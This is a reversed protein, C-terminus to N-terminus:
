INNELHGWRKFSLINQIAVQSVGFMEAIKHQTIGPTIEKILHIRRVQFENLKAMGNREGNNVTGLPIRDALNNSQNDWRLNEPRNDTPDSNNHCVFPLGEPQCGHFAMAVLRSVIRHKYKRGLSILYRGQNLQLKLKRRSGKHDSWIEGNTDAYYGKHGPIEKIEYM